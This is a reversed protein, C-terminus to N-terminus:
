PQAGHSCDTPALSNASFAARRNAMANLYSAPPLILRDRLIVAIFYTTSFSIPGSDVVHHGSLLTTLNEKLMGHALCQSRLWQLSSWGRCTIGVEQESMARDAVCADGYQPGRLTTGSWDRPMGRDGQGRKGRGEATRHAPPDHLRVSDCPLSQIFPVSSAHVARM